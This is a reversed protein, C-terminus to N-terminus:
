LEVKEDMHKLRSKDLCCDVYAAKLEIQYINQNYPNTLVKVKDGYNIQGKRLYRKPFVASKRVKGLLDNDLTYLFYWGGLIAYPATPPNDQEESVIIANIRRGVTYPIIVRSIQSYFFSYLMLLFILTCVLYEELTWIDNALIIPLSFILSIFFRIDLSRLPAHNLKDQKKLNLVIKKFYKPYLFYSIHM